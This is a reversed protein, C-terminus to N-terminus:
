LGPADSGGAPRRDKIAVVIGSRCLGVLGRPALAALGVVPADLRSRNPSAACADAVIEVASNEPLTEAALLGTAVGISGSSTAFALHGEADFIPPTNSAISLSMAASPDAVDRERGRGRGAGALVARGREVGSRDIAVAVEGAPGSQLACVIGQSDVAPSGLWREPGLPGTLKAEIGRNFDFRSLHTHTAAVAVLTQEDVLAASGDIDSNFRGARVAKESGPVWTWVSGTDDVVVVKGQAALLSHSTPEPLVVRARETGRSDLVALDPGSAVVVGGDDLAIPAAHAASPRGFRSRWIVSGDRVAIAAGSGDVFVLTDDSLLVAPGPQTTGPGVRWLVGGDRDIAVVEGSEGVVYTRGKSDVLPGQQAVFGLATRWQTQLGSSPLVSAAVGRRSADGRAM